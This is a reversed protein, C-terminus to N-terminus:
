INVLAYSLNRQHMGIVSIWGHQNPKHENLLQLQKLVQCHFLYSNTTSYVIYVTRMYRGTLKNKYYCPENYNIHESPCWLPQV